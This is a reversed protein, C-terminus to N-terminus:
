EDADSPDGPPPVPPQPAAVPRGLADFVPQAARPDTLYTALTQRSVEDKAPSDMLLARFCLGCLTPRDQEFPADPLFIQWGRVLRVTRFRASQGGCMDCRVPRLHIIGLMGGFALALFALATATRSGHRTARRITKEKM